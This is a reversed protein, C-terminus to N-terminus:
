MRRPAAHNERQPFWPRFTGPTERVVPIYQPGRGRARDRVNPGGGRGPRSLLVHEVRYEPPRIPPPPHNGGAACLCSRHACLRAANTRPPPPNRTVSGVKLRATGESSTSMTASRAASNTRSLIPEVLPDSGASGGLGYM